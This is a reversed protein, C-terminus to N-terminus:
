KDLNGKSSQSGDTNRTEYGNTESLGFRITILLKGMRKPLAPSSFEDTPSVSQDFGGGTDM